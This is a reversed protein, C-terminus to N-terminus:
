VCLMLIFEDEKRRRQMAALESDVVVSEIATQALPSPPLAQNAGGTYLPTIGGSQVSPSDPEIGASEFGIGEFEPSKHEQNRLRAELLEWQAEVEERTLVDPKQPSNVPKTKGGGYVQSKEEELLAILGQVAMAIPTLLFGQLALARATLNM